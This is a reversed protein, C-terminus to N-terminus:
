VCLSVTWKSDATKKTKGTPPPWVRCLQCLWLRLALPFPAGCPVNMAPGAPPSPSPSPKHTRTDTHAHQIPLPPPPTSKCRLNWLMQEIPLVMYVVSAPTNVPLWQLQPNTHTHKQMHATQAHMPTSSLLHPPNMVVVPNRTIEADDEYMALEYDQHRHVLQTTTRPSDDSQEGNSSTWLCVSVSHAHLM